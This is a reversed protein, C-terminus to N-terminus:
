LLTTVAPHPGLAFYLLLLCLVAVGWDILRWPSSEYFDAMPRGLTYGRALLADGIEASRRIMIAVLPVATSALDRLRRIFSRPRTAIARTIQAQRITEYDSLALDLSRFVTSLFFIVAQPCHLQRLAGILEVDRATMVLAISVIIMGAYGTTKTVAVLLGQDSVLLALPHFFAVQAIRLEPLHVSQAFVFAIAIGVVIGLFLRRTWLFYGVVIVLLIAQWPALGIVLQGAYIPLQLLTVKGPVPNFVIWTIFLALLAPLTLLFYLRAVGPSVGSLALILVAGSWLVVAGVLDPHSTNITRLLAASLCLVLLTRALLHVRAFPANVHRSFLFSRVYRRGAPPLLFDQPVDQPHETESHHLSRNAQAHPNGTQSLM